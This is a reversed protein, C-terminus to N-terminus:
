ANEGDRINKSCCSSAGIFPVEEHQKIVQMVEVAFFGPM